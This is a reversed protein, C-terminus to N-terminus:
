EEPLNHLILGGSELSKVLQNCDKEKGNAVNCVWNGGPEVEKVVFWGPAPTAWIEFKRGKSNHTM